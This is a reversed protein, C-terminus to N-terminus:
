RWLTVQELLFTRTLSHITYRSEHLGSRHDVLNLRILTEVANRLDGPDLASAVALFALDAGSVPALPMTLFLQRENDDLSDWARRYIYTYLHEVSSGRAAHLDSLVTHLAHRHSQGVVLRLALPNGGVIEYIPRLEAEKAEYLTPLNRMRAEHHVLALAEEEPLPHLQIPFISAEGDLRQRSTLLFKSPNTLRQLTPLLAEVDAITELNDVVVLHPYAKMQALLLPMVREVSFPIPLAEELIQEALSHLLTEATLAQASIPVLAGDLKFTSQRATVWGFNDFRLRRISRRMFADALATKGIGGIGQVLVIWPPGDAELLASLQDLYSDVGFLEEYTPLELRAEVAAGFEAQATEEEAWLLAALLEIAQSHKRFYTAEAVNLRNAIRATEMRDLYRLRLLSASERDVRDLENIVNLLLQNVATQPTLTKQLLNRVMRFDQLPSVAAPDHWQKLTEQIVATFNYPVVSDKTPM